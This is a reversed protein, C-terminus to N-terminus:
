LFGIQGNINQKISQDYIQLLARGCFRAKTIGYITM